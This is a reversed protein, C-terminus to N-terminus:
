LMSVDDDLGTYLRGTKEWILPGVMMHQTAVHVDRFYRQLPSTRYVSTGGAVNYAIDVAKAGARAANAAALRIDRRLEVTLEGTEVAVDYAQAVSEWLFARASRIAAEADAIQLHTHASKALPKMRGEPTKKSALAVVEDVAARALGLAVASIGISLLGFVPFAYLPREIPKDVVLSVARDSPILLNRMAFDTSGTGCLGSVNWTDLFEIESRPAIMMRSIPMGNPMVEPSGDKIVACGGMVWDSNQTGSGWQWEGNVRYGGDEPVAFGRPAFVGAIKAEPSAGFIESAAAEPLYGAVLGSTSGIFVCWAASADGLALTEVVDLFTVPSAELGGYEIPVCLRYLGAKAFADSIDQPLQRSREIEEARERLMPVFGRAANVVDTRSEMEISM